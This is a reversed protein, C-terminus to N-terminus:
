PLLARLVFYVVGAVAGIVIWGILGFLLAFAILGAGGDHDLEELVPPLPTLGLRKRERERDVLGARELERGIREAHDRDGSSAQLLREERSYPPAQYTTTRSTSM